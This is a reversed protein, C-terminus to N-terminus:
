WSNKRDGAPYRLLEGTSNRVHDRTTCMMPMITLPVAAFFSFPGFDHVDGDCHNSSLRSSSGNHPRLSRSLASRNTFQHRCDLSSM